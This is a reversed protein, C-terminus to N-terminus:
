EESKPKEFLHPYRKEIQVRLDPALEAKYLTKVKSLQEVTLHLTDKLYARELYAKELNAMQLNAEQLVAYRLDAGGLNANQLNAWGLFAGDLFAGRLDAENMHARELVANQLSSGILSAGKLDARILFAERLDAQYLKAGRLIADNLNAGYLKASDLIAGSLDAGRLDANVLFARHAQAYRLSRGRLPAGKVQSIQEEKGSWDSPKTSVDEEPFDAFPSFGFREFVYPVWERADNLVFKSDIFATRVRVGHITGLSLLFLILGLRVALVGRKYTMMKRFPKKWLLREGEDGRLTGVALRYFLVGAWIALVLLAIHLATGFWDQRPLYRLWFCLLTGPMFIWALFMSIWEQLHSLPPRDERLHFVHARVLGALLWPYAKQDLPRGDPFIAPLTALGEWLRQLYLHFYFYLGLLIFPAVIYFLVIPIQTGIIPLPSSASNTLLRVDTTTAITLLGYACGLLMGFFLKRSNRSAEAVVELGEKFEQVAKPLRANSVNAGALQGAQLDLTDALDAHQLDAGQLRTETLSAKKMDANKLVAVELKAERLYAEQLNAGSLDVGRLNAQNLNAGQLNAKFIYAGQLNAEIAEAGHLEAERLNARELNSRLLNAERLNARWLVAERFNTLQLRARQLNAKHLEAKQLDAEALIAEGLSAEGLQAERLNAKQLNAKKLNSELLNARRFNTGLLYAEQLNARTLDAKELNAEVVYAQKLNACSLDARAGEKGDSELWRRHSELTEKFQEQSIERLEPPEGEVEEEPGKEEDTGRTTNQTKDM